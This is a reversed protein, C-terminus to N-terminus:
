SALAFAADSEFIEFKRDLQTIEFILRATERLNCLVLRCGHKRAIELGGLLALLGGTDISEVLSMDIAWFRYREPAIAAIQEQLESGKEADLRGSPKLLFPQCLDQAAM